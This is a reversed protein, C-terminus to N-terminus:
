IMKRLLTTTKCPYSRLAKYRTLFCRRHSGDEAKVNVRNGELFNLLGNLTGGWRYLLFFWVVSTVSFKMHYAYWNLLRQWTENRKIKGMFTSRTKLPFWLWCVRFPHGHKMCLYGSSQCDLRATNTCQSEQRSNALLCM